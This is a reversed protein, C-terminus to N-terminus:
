QALHVHGKPEQLCLPPTNDGPIECVLFKKLFLFPQCSNKVWKNQSTLHNKFPCLSLFLGVRAVM